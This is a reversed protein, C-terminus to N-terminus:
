VRCGQLAQFAQQPWGKHQSHEKRRMHALSGACIACSSTRCVKRSPTQAFSRKGAAARLCPSKAASSSTGSSPKLVCSKHSTMARPRSYLSVQLLIQRYLWMFTVSNRAKTMSSTRMAFAEGLQRTKVPTSEWTASPAPLAADGARLRTRWRLM